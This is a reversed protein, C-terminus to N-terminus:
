SRQILFPSLGAGQAGLYDARLSDGVHWAATPEVQHHTLAQQFIARDPKATQCQSSVFVGDFHQSLGLKDLIVPLRSDFNSIVSVPIQAQGCATLVPLVDPFVQWLEPHLFHDYLAEFYAEFDTFHQLKGMQEFVRRALSQWWEFERTKLIEDPFIAM